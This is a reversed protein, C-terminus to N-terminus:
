KRLVKQIARLPATIKWSLSSLLDMTRRDSDALLTECDSLERDKDALTREHDAMSGARSELLREREALDKEYSFLQGEHAQRQYAEELDPCFFSAYSRFEQSMKDITAFFSSDPLAPGTVYELLLRYLECVPAPVGQLEDVSTRSHRLNPRIFSVINARLNAEDAPWPIGLGDACRRLEPEWGELFHDYSVFVSPVGAISELASINHNFWFGFSKELPFGNRKLLSKAVDLPNRVAFVVSLEIGLENLIDKWLEFTLCTRPDKWAWLPQDTFHRRILAHLEEKFPQMEKRLHWQRPLPAVTDDEGRKLSTMIRKHFAVVDRLEWFGEPNDFGPEVMDKEEGLYAGLFNIARTITSTGSRHMGLICIAKTGM